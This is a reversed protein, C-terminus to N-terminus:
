LIHICMVEIAKADEISLRPQDDRDTENKVVNVGIRGNVEDMVVLSQSVFKETDSVSPSQRRHQRAQEKLKNM